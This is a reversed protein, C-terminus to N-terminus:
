VVSEPECAIWYQLNKTEHQFHLFKRQSVTVEYADPIVKFNEVAIFVDFDQLGTGITKKFNNASQNKRDGVTLMVTQNKCTISINPAETIAAAKNIMGVDEATLKFKFFDDVEITKEPAGKVLDKSAYFYEFKANDKSITLAKDGFDIEQNERISLLALVKSLDYIAVEKPFYEAVQARAFISKASTITAIVDGERFLISNNISAFNKLIQTTENSIQM